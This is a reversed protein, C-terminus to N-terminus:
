KGGLFFFVVDYIRRINEPNFHGIIYNRLAECLDVSPTHNGDVNRVYDM